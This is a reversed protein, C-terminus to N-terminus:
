RDKLLAALSGRALLPCLLPAAAAVLLASSGSTVVALRLAGPTLSYDFVRAFAAAWLLAAAWALVCVVWTEFAFSLALASRPTGLAIYLGLETRRFWAALAFIGTLLAATVLWGLRQPRDRLEDAPDRAFEGQRLYPRTVAEVSGDTLQASLSALGAEYASPEFEVWCEDVRGSAPVVDLVWRGAQPNRQMTEVVSTVTPREGVETVPLGPRVGLETAAARGLVLAAGSAAPVRWSPDWVRLVGETVGAAQFLVGPQTAFTVQGRSRLGGSSVTGRQGALAACGAAQVGEQGSAIAVYGGGAVLSRQFALLDSAVRLEAFALSGFVLTAGVFLFATRTGNARLNLLTERLLASIRWSM